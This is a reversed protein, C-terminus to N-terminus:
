TPFSVMIENQSYVPAMDFHFQPNVQHTNCGKNELETNVKSSILPFNFNSMGTDPEM